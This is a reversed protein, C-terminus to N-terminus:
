LEQCQNIDIWEHFMADLIMNDQEIEEFSAGSFSSPSWCIEPTSRDSESSSYGGAIGEFVAGDRWLVNESPAPAESTYVVEGEVSPGGSAESGSERQESAELEQLLAWYEDESLYLVDTQKNPAFKKTGASYITRSAHHIPQEAARRASLRPAAVAKGKATRRCQVDKMFAERALQKRKLVSRDTKAGHSLHRDM